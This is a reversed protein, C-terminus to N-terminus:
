PYQGGAREVEVAADLALINTQFAINNILTNITGIRRTSNTIDDMTKIVTDMAEAVLRM